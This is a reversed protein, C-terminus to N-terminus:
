KKDEILALTVFIFRDIQELKYKPSIAIELAPLVSSAKTLATLCLKSPDIIMPKYYTHVFQNPLAFMELKLNKIEDWIKESQSIAVKVIPQPIKKGSKKDM